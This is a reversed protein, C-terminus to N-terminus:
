KKMKGWMEAAQKMTYGKKMVESCFKNYKSPARKKKGAVPVLASGKSKKKGAVPVLASGKSKKWEQAAQKMTMGAKMCESCFKNYKSPERKKKGAVKKVEKKAVKTAKKATGTIMDMIDDELGLGKKMGGKSSKVLGDIQKSISDMTMGAKFTDNRKYSYEGIAKGLLYGEREKGHQMNVSDPKSGDRPYMAGAYLEGGMVRAKFQDTLSKLKDKQSKNLKGGRRLVKVRDEVFKRM